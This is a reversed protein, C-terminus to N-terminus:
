LEAKLSRTKNAILLVCVLTQVRFQMTGADSVDDHPDGSLM